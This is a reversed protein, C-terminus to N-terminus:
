EGVAPVDQGCEGVSGAGNPVWENGAIGFQHALGNGLETHRDLDGVISEGDGGPVEVSMGFDVTTEGAGHHAKDRRHRQKSRTRDAEVAVWM